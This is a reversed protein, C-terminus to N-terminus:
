FAARGLAVFPVPYQVLVVSIDFVPIPHKRPPLVSKFMTRLRVTRNAPEIRVAVPAVEVSHIGAREDTEAGHKFDQVGARQASVPQFGNGEVKAAALQTIAGLINLDDHFGAALKGRRRGVTQGARVPICSTEKHPKAAVTFEVGGAVTNRSLHRFQRRLPCGRGVGYGQIRVAARDVAAIDCAVGVAHACCERCRAIHGICAVREHAPIVVFIQGARRNRCDATCFCTIFLIPRLPFDILIGDCDLGFVAFRINDYRLIVACRNGSRGQCSLTIGKLSPILFDGFGHRRPIYRNFCLPFDILVCYGKIGVASTLNCWNCLIVTCFNGGRVFRCSFTIGKLSPILFDGFGHRRLIYRNFCLPFDILVCYGKIGVASTLNCWNCLIVTCFNGGRVFRCSFTIGKLSPILFDGFGHRRLIYRNFCM